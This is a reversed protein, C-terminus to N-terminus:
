GSEVTIKHPRMGKGLKHGVGSGDTEVHGLLAAELAAIGVIGHPQKVEGLTHGHPYMVEGLNHGVEDGRTEDQGICATDLAAKGAIGHPGM